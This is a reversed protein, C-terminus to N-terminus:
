VPFYPFCPESRLPVRGDPVCCAMPHPLLRPRAGSHALALLKVM